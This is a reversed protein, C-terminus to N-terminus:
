NIYKSKVTQIFYKLTIYDYFPVYTIEFEFLWQRNIWFQSSFQNILRHGEKPQFSDSISEQYQFNFKKLNPINKSIFKEWQNGNLYTDDDSVNLRISELKTSMNIILKQFDDFIFNCRDLSIYKLDPLKVIVPDEMVDYSKKLNLNNFYRLHPTYSLMANLITLSHFHHIILHEINSFEQNFAYSLSSDTDM